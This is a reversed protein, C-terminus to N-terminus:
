NEQSMEAHEEAERKSKFTKIEPRGRGPREKTMWAGGNTGAGQLIEYRGISSVRYWHDRAGADRQPNANKRRALEEQFIRNIDAPIHLKKANAVQWALDKDSMSKAMSTVGTVEAESADRAPARYHNHIVIKRPM